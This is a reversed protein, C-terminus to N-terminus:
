ALEDATSCEVDVARVEGLDTGDNDPRVGFSAPGAAKEDAGEEVLGLGAADLADAEEGANRGEELVEVEADDLMAGQAVLYHLVAHM